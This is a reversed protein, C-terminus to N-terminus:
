TGNDEAGKLKSLMEARWTEAKRKEITELQAQRATVATAEYAPFTCVSVEYLKVRQIHWVTVGGRKEVTEDLIDFGFSCQSVDGRKVREYLNVADQDLDNIHISGFLGHDDTRLELTKSLTRGLVLTTDHNTLARVDTDNVLDFAGVDVTEIGDDWLQYEAGFVAFYGDIYKAGDVERTQFEGNKVVARRENM